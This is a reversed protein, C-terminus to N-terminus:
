CFARLQLPALICVAADLSLSGESRNYVTDFQLNEAACLVIDHVVDPLCSLCNCTLICGLRLCDHPAHKNCVQATCTHLVYLPKNAHM